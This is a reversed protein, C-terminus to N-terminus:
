HVGIQVPTLRENYTGDGLQGYYNWGWAWLTGNTKLGISYRAGASIMTFGTGTQVPMSKDTKTGDGLQGYYNYGWAWLTGDTKLALFHGAAAM